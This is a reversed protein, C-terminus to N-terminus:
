YISFCVGKRGFCIQEEEMEQRKGSMRDKLRSVQPIEKGKNGKVDYAM